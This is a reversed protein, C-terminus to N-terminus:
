QVTNFMHWVVLVPFVYSVPYLGKTFSSNHGIAILPVGNVVISWVMFSFYCLLVNKDKAVKWKNLSPIFIADSNQQGAYEFNQMHWFSHTIPPFYKWLCEYKVPRKNEIGSSCM